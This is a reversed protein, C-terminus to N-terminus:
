MCLHRVFTVKFNILARIRLYFIDDPNYTSYKIVIANQKLLAGNCIHSQLHLSSLCKQCSKSIPPYLGIARVSNINKLLFPVYASIFHLTLIFHVNYSVIYLVYYKKAELM